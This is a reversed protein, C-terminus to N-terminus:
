QPLMGFFELIYEFKSPSDKKIFASAAELSGFVFFLFSAFGLLVAFVRLSNGWYRAKKEDDIESFLVQTFYAFMSCLLGAGTGIVYLGIAISLRPTHIVSNTETRSLVNGYFTLYRLLLAVM